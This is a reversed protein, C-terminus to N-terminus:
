SEGLMSVNLPVKGEGLYPVLAVTDLQAHLKKFGASVRSGGYQICAPGIM